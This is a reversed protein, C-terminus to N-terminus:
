RKRMRQLDIIPAAACLGFFVAGLLGIVRDKTTQGDIMMWIGGAVFMVSVMLWFIAGAVTKPKASAHQVRSVPFLAAIAASLHKLLEPRENRDFWFTEENVDIGIQHRGNPMNFPISVRGPMPFLILGSVQASPLTVVRRDSENIVVRVESRPRFPPDPEDCQEVRFQGDPSRTSCVFQGAESLICDAARLRALILVRRDHAWAPTDRMWCSADPVTVYFTQGVSGCGFRIVREAGEDYVIVDKWDPYIRFFDAAADASIPEM